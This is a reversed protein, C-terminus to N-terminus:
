TLLKQWGATLFFCLQNQLMYSMWWFINVFCLFSALLDLAKRTAAHVATHSLPWVTVTCITANALSLNIVLHWINLQSHQYFPLFLTSPLASKKWTCDHLWFLYVLLIQNFFCWLRFFFIFFYMVRSQVRSLVLSCLISLSCCFQIQLILTFLLCLVMSCWMFTNSWYGWLIRAPLCSM